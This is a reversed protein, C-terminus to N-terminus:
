PRAEKEEQRRREIAMAQEESIAHALAEQHLWEKRANATGHDVWVLIRDMLPAKPQPDCVLALSGDFRSFLSGPSFDQLQFRGYGIHQTLM